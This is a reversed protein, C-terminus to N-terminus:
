PNSRAPELGACIRFIQRESYRRIFTMQAIEAVPMGQRRLNRITEEQRETAAVPVAITEGAFWRVVCAAHHEGIEAVLCEWARGKSDAPVCLRRGGYSGVLAAVTDPALFECIMAM